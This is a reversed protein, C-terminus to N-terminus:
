AKDEKIKQAIREYKIDSIYKLEEKDINFARVLQSLCIKVDAIEELVSIDHIDTKERVVKSLQQTLEAMEEMCIILDEHKDHARHYNTFDDLILNKTEKTLHECKKYTKDNLKSEIEKRDM